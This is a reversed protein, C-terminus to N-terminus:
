LWYALRHRRAATLWLALGWAAVTMAIAILYTRAGPVVGVLPDRVLAVWGAVPNLDM